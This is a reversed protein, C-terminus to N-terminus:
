RSLEQRVWHLDRNTRLIQAGVHANLLDGLHQLDLLSQLVRTEIGQQALIMVLLVLDDDEAEVLGYTM